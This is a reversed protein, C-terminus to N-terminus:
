QESGGFEREMMARLGAVVQRFGEQAAFGNLFLYLETDGEAKVSLLEFGRDSGDIQATPRRFHEAYREELVEGDRVLDYFRLLDPLSSYMGGSGMVLWSTPGWNPPINPLGVRSPGQGVAFDALGLDRRDGYMGTRTMGAPDFFNERLFPWYEQGSAREVLAALLVFAGHSHRQSTGPAFLLESSLLRREATQRDIWALDADWDGPEHFFDVLGSRGTMLHRITMARKDAPVEEFWRDISDDLTLVGRQALLFISAITFDIPRSGVGFVTDRSIPIGLEPSAMGFTREVATEGNVRLHLVGSYGERELRDITEALNERTVEMPPEPAGRDELALSDIGWPEGEEVTFRVTYRRPGDLYISIGEASGEIGVGGAQEAATRIRDLLERREPGPTRDRYAASFHERDFRDLLEELGLAFSTEIATAHATIAGDRGGARGTTDREGGRDGGDLLELRHIGERDLVVRLERVEGAGSLVLRVGDPEREVSLGDRLGHLEDRIRRLEAALRDRDAIAGPAMSEDLFSEIAADGSSGVLLMVADVSERLWPPPGSQARAATALSALLCGTLVICVLLPCRHTPRQTGKTM